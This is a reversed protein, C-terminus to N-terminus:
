SVCEALQEGVALQEALKGPCQPRKQSVELLRLQIVAHDDQREALKSAAHIFVCGGSGVM